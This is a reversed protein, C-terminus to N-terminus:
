ILIPQKLNHKSWKRFDADKKSCNCRACSACINGPSHAGGSKLAVIHDIHLHERNFRRKCWYCIFRRKQKLRQIIIRTADSNSETARRMAARDSLHSNWKERNQKRWERQYAAAKARWKKNNVRRYNKNYVARESNKSNAIARKRAHWIPDNKSKHYHALLRAREAARQESTMSRYRNRLRAASKARAEPHMRMYERMYAARRSRM